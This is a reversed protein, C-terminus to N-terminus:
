EEDEEGFIEHRLVGIEGGVNTQATSKKNQLDFYLKIAPISGKKAAELLSNWIYAEDAEAFGRALASAYGRFSGDLVWSAFEEDSVDNERLIDDIGKGSRVMAYAVAAQRADRKECEFEEVPM